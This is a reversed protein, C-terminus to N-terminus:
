GAGVAAVAPAVFREVCRREDDPTPEPMVILAIISRTVWRATAAADPADGGMVARVADAIAPHSVALRAPLGADTAFWPGLAPDARIAALAATVAAAARDRPDDVRDTDQVIRVLIRETTARIYGTLVDSRTPFYRYLTARSCGAAAAIDAMTVADVGRRAFLEAAVDLLRREAVRTRDEAIWDTM